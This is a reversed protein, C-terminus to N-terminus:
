ELDIPALSSSNGIIFFQKMDIKDNHAVFDKDMQMNSFYNDGNGGFFKQIIVYLYYFYTSYVILSFIAGVLTKHEDGKNDMNWTVKRGFLDFKDIFIDHLKRSYLSSKKKAPM